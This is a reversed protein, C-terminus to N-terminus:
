AIAGMVREALGDFASRELWRSVVVLDLAPDIWIVNRGHGLAFYSTEPAAACYARDTNLWWLYGYLPFIKAPATSVDIWSESILQKDGWHGRRSMLLGTRAQDRSSIFLGGGWHAGGSVSQMREGDIEVYSNEYGEWHWDDSAGIPDMIRTRLIEPLPRRFVRLLAYALVNVRIDNYEWFTGPPQLDRHTGKKIKSGGLGDLQRNRDIRDAKSWLTGEWESSQTLLHTWTIDRNQDSDFTGDQVLERVPADVDPILGNDVALGACLSLYSKTVSFTIDPATTPGWEVAIRGNKVVLGSPDGRPETPGIVDGDPPPEEFHGAKLARAIDRDMASENEQAFAAVAELARADLGAEEPAVTEWDDGKSPVYNTM